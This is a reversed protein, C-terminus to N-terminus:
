RIRRFTTTEGDRHLTFVSDGELRLRFEAAVEGPSPGVRLTLSDEEVLTWYQVAGGRANMTGDARIEVTNTYDMFTANWRGVIRERPGQVSCCLGALSALLLLVPLPNRSDM